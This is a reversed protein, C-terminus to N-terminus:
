YVLITRNGGEELAANLTKRLEKVLIEPEEQKQPYSAAAVSVTISVAPGYELIIPERMVRLRLTEAVQFINQQGTEPLIIAFEDGGFRTIIDTNRFHQRLIDAFKVIVMDGTKHGYKENIDKFNDIDVMVVSFKRGYRKSRKYEEEIRKWFYTSSFILTSKDVINVKSLEEEMIISFAALSIVFHLTDLLKLHDKINTPKNKFLFFVLGQKRGKLNVPMHILFNCSRPFYESNAFIENDMKDSYGIKEDQFFYSSVLDRGEFRINNKSYIIRFDEEGGSPVTLLVDAANLKELLRDFLSAPSNVSKIIDYVEDM